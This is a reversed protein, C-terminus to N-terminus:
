RKRNVRYRRAVVSGGLVLVGGITLLLAGVQRYPAIYFTTSRRVAARQKGRGFELNARATFRGRSPTDRWVFTYKRTAKPFLTGTLPFTKKTHGAARIQVAATSAKAMDIRVNGRNAVTLTLKVPGASSVKPVRLSTIAPRFRQKGRIRVELRVALRPQLVFGGGRPADAVQTVYIVGIADGPEARKPIAMTWQIPEVTGPGSTFSKPTVSMWSSPRRVDNSRPEFLYHGRSDQTADGIDARYKLGGSQTFIRLTGTITEGPSASLEYKPPSVSFGPNAAAAAVARPPATLVILACCIAIFSGPACRRMCRHLLGKTENCM